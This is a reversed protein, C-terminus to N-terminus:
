VLHSTSQLLGLYQSVSASFIHYYGLVPKSLLQDKGEILKRKDEESITLNYASKVWRIFSNNYLQSIAPEYKPLVEISPMSIGKFNVTVKFPAELNHEVMELVPAAIDKIFEKNPQMKSTPDYSVNFDFARSMMNAIIKSIFNRIENYSGPPKQNYKVEIARDLIM